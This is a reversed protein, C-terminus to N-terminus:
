IAQIVRYGTEELYRLGHSRYCSSYGGTENMWNALHFGPPPTFDRPFGGEPMPISGGCHDSMKVGDIELGSLAAAFKDYGYGGAHGQQYPLAESSKSARYNFVDVTVGGSDAYYAQINAVEEGAPNLVIWASISKGAKTERVQKM